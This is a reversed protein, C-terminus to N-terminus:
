YLLSYIFLGSSQFFLCEAMLMMMGGLYMPNRSYRYLGSIVLNKTPDAPFLTGKRKTAFSLICHLLIILRIVFLVIATYEYFHFPSNLVLKFEAGLIWYPILGAVIGPQLITFFLNRLLLSLMGKYEQM